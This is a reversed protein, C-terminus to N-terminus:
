QAFPDITRFSKPEIEALGYGIARMTGGAAALRWEILHEAEPDDDFNGTAVYLFEGRMTESELSWVLPDESEVAYASGATFQQDGLGPLERRAMDLLFDPAAAEAGAVAEAQRALILLGCARALQAERAMGASTAAGYGRRRLDGFTACDSAERPSAGEELGVMSLSSSPMAADAILGQGEAALAEAPACGDGAIVVPHCFVVQGDEEYALPAEALADASGETEATAGSVVDGVEPVTEDGGDGGFFYTAGAIVAAGAGGIAAMTGGRGGQGSM